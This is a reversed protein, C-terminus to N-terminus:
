RIPLYLATGIENSNEVQEPYDQYIELAPRTMDQKIRRMRCHSHLAHWGLPLFRHAGRMSLKLYRGGRFQRRTHKSLPASDAIPIAVEAEYNRANPAFRHFLTLPLGLKGGSAAELTEVHQWRTAELQRLSGSFPIAWYGFDELEEEGSFHLTPHPTDDNLYGQLLALGLDYDREILQAMSKTMFRFLFPMSGEMEWTVVSHSERAEFAWNVRSTSKFPRRFDLRQEIRQNPTIRTHTVRGAGILAGDWEYYGDEHQFGESFSLRADAEHLLWPSWFPWSKLDAVANFASELPADMELSRRVEFRGPLLALYVIAAAVLLAVISLAIWM